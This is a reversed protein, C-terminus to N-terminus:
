LSPMSSSSSPRKLPVSKPKPAGDVVDRKAITEHLVCVSVLDDLSSVLSMISQKQTPIAVSALEVFPLFGGRRTMYYFTIIEDITRFSLIGDLHHEYIAKMSYGAVTTAKTMLCESTGEDTGGGVCSPFTDRNQGCINVVYDSRKKGDNETTMNDHFCSSKQPRNIAFFCQMFPHIHSAMLQNAPLRGADRGKLAPILSAIALVVQREAGKVTRALAILQFEAELGDMVDDRFAMLTDEISIATSPTMTRQFQITGLLDHRMAKLLAPSFHDPPWDEYTNMANIYLISDPFHPGYALSLNCSQSTFVQADSEDDSLPDNPNSDRIGRFLASVNIDGVMWTDANKNKGIRKKVQLRIHDRCMHTELERREKFLLSCCLCALRVPATPYKAINKANWKKRTIDHVRRLRPPFVQDHEEFCHMILSRPEEYYEDLGCLPCILKVLTIM